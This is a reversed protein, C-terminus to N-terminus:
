PSVAFRLKLAAKPLVPPPCSTRPRSGQQDSFASLGLPEAVLPLSFHPRPTILPLWFAESDSAPNSSSVGRRLWTIFAPSPSYWKLHSSPLALKLPCSFDLFCSVVLPHCQQCVKALLLVLPILYIPFSLPSTVASVVSISLKMPPWYWCNYVLLNLLRLIFQYIRLFM